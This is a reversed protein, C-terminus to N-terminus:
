KNMIKQEQEFIFFQFLFTAFILCTVDDCSIESQHFTFKANRLFFYVAKLGFLFHKQPQLKIEDLKRHTVDGGPRTLGGRPVTPAQLGPSRARTLPPSPWRQFGPQLPSLLLLREQRRCRCVFVRRPTPPFCLLSASVARRPLLLPKISTQVPPQFQLLEELPRPPRRCAPLTQFM